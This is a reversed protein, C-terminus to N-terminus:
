QANFFDGSKKTLSAAQSIFIKQNKTLSAAQSPFAEAKQYPKSGTNSFSSSKILGAAQIQFVVAKKFPVGTGSQVETWYGRDRPENVETVLQRTFLQKSSLAQM